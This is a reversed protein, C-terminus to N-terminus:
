RDREVETPIWGNATTCVWAFRKGEFYSLRECKVALTFAPAKGAEHTAAVKIALYAWVVAAFVAIAGLIETRKSM